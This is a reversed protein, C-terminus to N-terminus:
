ARGGIKSGGKITNEPCRLIDTGGQGGGGEKAGRLLSSSGKCTAPPVWPSLFVLRGPLQHHSGTQYLSQNREVSLILLNPSSM